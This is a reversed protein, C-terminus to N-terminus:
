ECAAFHSICAVYLPEVIVAKITVCYIRLSM